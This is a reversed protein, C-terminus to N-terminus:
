EEEKNIVVEADYYAIKRTTYTNQPTIIEKIWNGNERGDFQYIYNKVALRNGKKTEKKLLVQLEDYSFISTESITFQKSEEDFLSSTASLLHNSASYVEELITNPKGEIFHKTLVVKQISEDEAKKLYTRVSKLIVDNLIHTIAKDEESGAYLINTEDIGDNNARIIKIIQNESNYNYEYQDLFENNYSVIKETIKFNVLSDITYINAISTNSDFINDRYNELRKELLFGNAYKYYTIDYDAESYRTTSKTLFGEENFDYEEKGYKTTVLCSKVKGKLDFDNVKFIKIEQSILHSSFGGLVFCFLFIYNKLM